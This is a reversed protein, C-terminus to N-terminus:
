AATPAHEGAAVDADAELVIEPESLPTSAVLPASTSRATVMASPM